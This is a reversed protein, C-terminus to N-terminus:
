LSPNAKLKAYLLQDLLKGEKVVANKFHGEQIFGAKELAKRSGINTSFLKAYVRILKLNEFAHETVGKISETIFGRNWFSEALWYGLMGNYRRIDNLVSLHIDGICEDEYVIAFHTDTNKMATNTIFNLADQYTYPHPFEDRFFKWINYNDAYKAYKEADEVRFSRIVLSRINTNIVM